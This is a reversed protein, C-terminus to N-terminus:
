ETSDGHRLRIIQRKKEASMDFWGLAHWPVSYLYHITSNEWCHKVQAGRPGCKKRCAQAKESAWETRTDDIFARTFPFKAANLRKFLKRKVAFYGWNGTREDTWDHEIRRIVNGRVAGRKTTSGEPKVITASIQHYVTIDDSLNTAVWGTTLQPDVSSDIPWSSDRVARRESGCRSRPQNWGQSPNGEM